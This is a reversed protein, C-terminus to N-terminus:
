KTLFKYITTTKYTEGPKLETTPFSPQNPSDPYHQTELAFATRYSDKIGNKFTFDGKMFNGTYFQVGPQDTYVEMKIHSKDGEVTISPKQLDHNKLVFNHDYGKADILQISGEGIRSGIAAPKRFDFPSNEVPMLKGTPILKNDVPTFSDANITLIHNLITGSGCGNLNFYSHNTLNVVTPKDTTANYTIKLANDDTLEYTVKVKVNGPFGEEGDKSLYDLELTQANVQRADWVHSDFGTKGGHLANPGNNAPITYSKGELTFKGNAIRNGYRGILAGYYNSASKQYGDIDNFGTVVDVKRGDAAPVLLSVLRGGFNTIAAEAGSNNKLYFLDTQKGEMNHRFGDARPLVGATNTMNKHNSSTCAAQLLGIALTGAILRAFYKKNKMTTYRM